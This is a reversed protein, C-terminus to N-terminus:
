QAGCENVVKRSQCLSRFKQTNFGGLLFGRDTVDNLAHRYLKGPQIPRSNANNAVSWFRGLEHTREYIRNSGTIKLPEDSIRAGMTIPLAQYARNDAQRCLIRFSGFHRCETCHTSMM